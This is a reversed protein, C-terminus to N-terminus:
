VIKIRLSKSTLHTPNTSVPYSRGRPKKPIPGKETQHDWRPEFGHRRRSLGADQAVLRHSWRNVSHGNYLSIGLSAIGEM